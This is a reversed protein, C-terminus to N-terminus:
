VGLVRVHRGLKSFYADEEYLTKLFNLRVVEVSM